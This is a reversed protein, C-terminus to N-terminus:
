KIEIGIAGLLIAFLILVVLGLLFCVQPEKLVTGLLPYREGAEYSLAFVGCLALLYLFIFVGLPM